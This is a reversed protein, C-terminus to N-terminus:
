FSYFIIVFKLRLLKNQFPKIRLSMTKVFDFAKHFGYLPFINKTNVTPAFCKRNVCVGFFKSHYSIAM